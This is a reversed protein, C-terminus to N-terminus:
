RVSAPVVRRRIRVHPQAGILSGPLQEACERLVLERHEGVLGAGAGTPEFNSCLPKVPNSASGFPRTQPPDSRRLRSDPAGHRTGDARRRPGFLVHLQIGGDQRRGLRRASQRNPHAHETIAM